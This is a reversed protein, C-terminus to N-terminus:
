RRLVMPIDRGDRNITIRWLRPSERSLQDLTRTSDVARRNVQSVIDGKQLGVRFATSDYRVDTIAVGTTSRNLRLEDAVAPSINVVTAGAFPSTGGILREDRPRTESAKKLAVRVTMTRGQRIIGLDASGGVGKTTFRYGFANPGDIEFGDVTAILDGVRLGARDAPSQPVVDAVLAGRPRDLGLGEAIDATVNQLRAGLWPREVRGGNQASKAVLRAMNSPIAFGIGNSGGSRSFIATNIGVLRGSMDILAGGSNGPNIAADTQIFFQYDSVGVQTRALASVIGQTVTQGVGFPNGIALVLDGVEVKDSDAFEVVPFKRRADRVKLIALDTGEDKLVVDCDYERKDALVIRIDDAGKIVHHNTIVFGDQSVIVGSGLSRQMRRRPQDFGPGDFFHRFFPDDFFPSFRRQQQMRSAYVNVVAPAVNKVIPAFSLQIQRQNAPVQKQQAIADAGIVVALGLGLALRAARWYQERAVSRSVRVQRDSKAHDPGTGHGFRARFVFRAPRRVPDRGDSQTRLWRM